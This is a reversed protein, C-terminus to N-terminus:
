YSGCPGGLRVYQSALAISSPCDVIPRFRVYTGLGCAEATVMMTAMSLILLWLGSLFWIGERGDFARAVSFPIGLMWTVNWVSRFDAFGTILTMAATLLGVMGFRFALRGFGIMEHLKSSPPIDAIPRFRVQVLEPITARTVPIGIGRM